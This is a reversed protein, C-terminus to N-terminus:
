RLDDLVFAEPGSWGLLGPRSMRVGLFQIRWGAAALAAFAGTRGTDVGAEITTLGAAHALADVGGLLAAFDRAASPGPAVAAFKVYCVSSAAEGAGLHCLAFGRGNELVVVDGVGQDLAAGMERALDLGPYHADTVAALSALAGAGAGSGALTTPTLDSPAVTRAMVAVLHQPAFGCRHYLTVHKPSSPFTFLGTLTAGSADVRTLAADLLARGVGSDWRTPAVALPGLVAASGWSVVQVVGVVEGGELAVLTDEPSHRARTRVVDADGFTQSPDALGLFTGFAVRVLRDAADLEGPAIARIEMPPVTARRNM